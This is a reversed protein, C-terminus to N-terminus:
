YPSHIRPYFAACLFIIADTANAVPKGAYITNTMGVGIGM